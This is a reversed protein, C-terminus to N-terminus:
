SASADNSIVKSTTQGFHVLGYEWTRTICGPRQQTHNGDAQALGPATYATIATLGISFGIAWVAICGIM